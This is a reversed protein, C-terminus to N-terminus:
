SAVASMKVDKMLFWYLLVAVITGVFWAADYLLVLSPSFLGLFPLTVAATFSTLAHPNVGGGLKAHMLAAVAFCYAAFSFLVTKVAVGLKCISAVWEAPGFFALALLLVVLVIHANRVRKNIHSISDYSYKGGRKYLEDIDLETKNILFYSSICIGAIPGLFMSGGILFINMYASLDSLLRWPQIAISIVGLLVVAKKYTLLGGSLYALDMSPSLANAATNTTLTAFILFLMSGVVFWANGVKATLTVPDWIAEGFIVVTASTVLSGVLALAVM